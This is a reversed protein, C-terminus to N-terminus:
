GALVFTLIERGHPLSTVLPQERWVHIYLIASKGRMASGTALRPVAAVSAAIKGSPWKIAMWKFAGESLRLFILLSAQRAINRRRRHRRPM